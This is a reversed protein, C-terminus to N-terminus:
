AQRPGPIVHKEMIKQGIERSKESKKTSWLQDSAYRAATKLDTVPKVYDRELEFQYFQAELMPMKAPEHAAYAPLHRLEPLWKKIFVADPDHKLANHLPNYVRITNIGTVGAQMQFQSFHIGPEYDLFM